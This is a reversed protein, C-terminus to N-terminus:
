PSTEASSMGQGLEQLRQLRVPEHEVLWEDASLGRYATAFHPQAEDTCGLALLNEALEEHVYHDSEGRENLQALAM